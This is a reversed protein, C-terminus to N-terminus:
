PRPPHILGDLEEFIREVSGAIVRARKTVVTGHTSQILLPDNLTERLRTLMADMATLPVGIQMAAAQVDQKQLLARLARLLNLDFNRM